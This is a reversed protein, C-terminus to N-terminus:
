ASPEELWLLRGPAADIDPADLFASLPRALAGHSRDGPPFRHKSLVIVDAVPAEAAIRVQLIAAFDVDYTVIARGQDIAWALVAADPQGRLEPVETVALVDFGRARLAEAIGSSLNEDLLLRM